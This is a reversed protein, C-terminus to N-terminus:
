QWRFSRHALVSCVATWAVLVALQPWTRWLATGDNMVARLGDNVATLPLSQIFPHLQEPFREYSFFSGSLLWMPLMVFNLWGNAAEISEVRAAILLGIGAFSAAGLFAILVLGLVSGHTTVGFVLSGFGLLAAVELVLFVLRSLFHALLFHWRRMPTAALRKLLGRKRSLVISYGIGWMSSAMLNMGVIGPFLFDVYRAGRESVAEDLTALPDSRGLARQLADDFWLKAIRGEERTPDYRYVVERADSGVRAAAVLDVGGIRLARAAEPRSLRVVEVSDLGEALETM